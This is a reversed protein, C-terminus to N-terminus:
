KHTQQSRKRKKSTSATENYATALGIWYQFDKKTKLLSVPVYLYGRVVKDRHMMERFNGSAALADHLEPDFRCLLEENRVGLLMKDNMMFALGQFAPKEEIGPFISLHARVKEALAEDYAM